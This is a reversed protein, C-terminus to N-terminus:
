RWELAFAGCTCGRSGRETECASWELSPGAYGISFSCLVPHRFFRVGPVVIAVRQAAQQAMALGDANGVCRTLMALTRKHEAHREPTWTM